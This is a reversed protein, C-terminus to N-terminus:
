NFHTEYNRSGHFIYTIIVKKNADDIEYLAIYNDVVCKRVDLNVSQPYIRPNGELYLIGENIKDIVKKAIKTSSSSKLIFNYIEALDNEAEPLFIITYKNSM